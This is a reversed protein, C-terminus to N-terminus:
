AFSQCGLALLASCGALVDAEKMDNNTVRPTEQIHINSNRSSTSSICSDNNEEKKNTDNDNDNSCNENKFNNYYSLDITSQLPPQTLDLTIQPSQQMSLSSLSTSLRTSPNNNKVDPQSLYFKKNSDSSAKNTKTTAVLSFSSLSSLSPPSNPLATTPLAPFQLIEHSSNKPKSENDKFSSNFDTTTSPGAHLFFPQQCQQNYYHDEMKPKKCSINTHDMSNSTKLSSSPLQPPPSSMSMQVISLPPATVSLSPLHIVPVVSNTIKAAKPSRKRKKQNMKKIGNKNKKKEKHYNNGISVVHSAQPSSRRLKGSSKENNHATTVTAASTNVSTTDSTTNNSTFFTAATTNTITTTTPKLLNPYQRHMFKNDTHIKGKMGPLVVQKTSTSNSMMMTTTANLDPNTSINNNTSNSTGSSINTNTNSGVVRRKLRLIDLIDVVQDNIYTAGKQKGKGVRSFAFYNLQRRLSAFSAHNFYRPLIDSEVKARDHVIIRAPTNPGNNKRVGPNFSIISENEQLMDILRRLFPIPKESEKIQNPNHTPNGQPVVTAHNQSANANVPILASTSNPSSGNGTDAPASAVPHHLFCNSNM